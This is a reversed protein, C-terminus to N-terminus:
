ASCSLSSSGKTEPVAPGASAKRTAEAQEWASRVELFLRIQEQFLAPDVKAHGEVIRSRAVAYFRSLSTAAAGGNNFDLWSDLQDLVLLAHKVEDARTEINKNDIADLARKLDRVLTDYLMCVLQVPTASQVAAVRYQLTDSNM